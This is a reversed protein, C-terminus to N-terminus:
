RSSGPDDGGFQDLWYDIDGLADPKEAAADRTLRERFTSVAEVRAGVFRCQDALSRDNTVVTWGRPDSERRLLELIVADAKRGQGSFSVDHGYSVGPPPSGDFVVVIRRKERRMLGDVERVLARKEADSRSRGPWTGLLNDGDIVRPM